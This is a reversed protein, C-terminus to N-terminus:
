NKYAKTINALYDESESLRGNDDDPNVPALDLDKELITTGSAMIVGRKIRNELERVNGPWNYTYLLKKVSQSFGRINKNFENNYYDVFYKALLLIDNGRERLPPIHINITNIRYFLDERFHGKIMMEELNRNTAAVIRVNLQIRESSGVHEIIQDQLFRLIKVQLSQPLEGIEDLFLTGGEAAQFKGEKATHAGTFSGKEHGFLESELLNEPIAGCNIPVFAMNSRSSRAHIAKAVMEKGTGSEGTILVAVDTPAIKRLTEFVKLMPKSLAIIGEFKHNKGSKVRLSSLEKELSLIYTARRLIIKLEDIVVPKTYFDYAGEEMARLANERQAHGTIIIIKMLPNERLSSELIGFGEFDGPTSTLSLDLIMIEPRFTMIANNAEDATKATSINYNEKLAWTLQKIITEEDDVILLKTLSM